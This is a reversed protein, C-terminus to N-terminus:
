LIITVDVNVLTANFKDTYVAPYIATEDPAADLSYSTVIKSSWPADTAIQYYTEPTIDNGLANQEAFNELFRAVITDVDDVPYQSNSNVTLEIKFALAHQTPLEWKVALDQGNSITVNATQSGIMHQGAPLMEFAILESIALDDEPSAVTDVCIAVIGATALDTAQRITAIYGSELFRESVRSHLVAPRSIEQNLEVISDLVKQLTQQFVTDNSFDRQATSYAIEYEKSGEWQARSIAGFEITYANFYGTINQEVTTILMQGDIFLIM